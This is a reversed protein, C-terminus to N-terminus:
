REGRVKLMADAMAYCIEAVSECNLDQNVRIAEMIAPYYTSELAKAAFYDRLSMGACGYSASPFAREVAVKDDQQM